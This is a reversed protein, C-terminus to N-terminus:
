RSGVKERLGFFKPGNRSVGTIAKAVASLSGHTKGRWLYGKEAVHVEYREGKWDRLIRTGPMPRAASRTKTEVTDGTPTQARSPSELASIRRALEPGFGGFMEAQWKWAIGLMLFRKRAGKPADSGWARQWSKRLVVNDLEALAEIRDRLDSPEPPAARGVNSGDEFRARDHRM